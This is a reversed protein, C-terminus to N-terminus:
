GGNAKARSRGARIKEAIWADVENSPWAVARIGIKVPAPFEGKAILRYIHTKTYGVRKKVVACRLMEIYEAM